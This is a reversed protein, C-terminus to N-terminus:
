WDKGIKGNLFIEGMAIVRDISSPLITEMGALIGLTIPLDFHSGEKLIDAPALNVTIRKAPMSLGISNIAVRIREKSESVAKDPLGVIVLGPNGNMISVQVSVLVPDLGNFAISNIQSIM